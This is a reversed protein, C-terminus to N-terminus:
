QQVCRSSMERASKQCPSAILCGRAGGVGVVDAREGEGEM